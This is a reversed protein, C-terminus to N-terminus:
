WENRKRLERIVHFSLPGFAVLLMAVFFVKIEHDKQNNLSIIFGLLLWLNLAITLVFSGTIFGIVLSLVVLFTYAKFSKM